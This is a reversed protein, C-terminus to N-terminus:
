AAGASGALKARAKGSEFGRSEEIREAYWEVTKELGARFSTKPEFNLLQRALAIDAFSHKVDGQKADAFEPKLSGGILKELNEILDILNFRRNCAINFVKGVAALPARCACLNAEVIDRVFIFDRSQMGDGYIVPNRGNLAATIFKPIVAAYDSGPDQRRGFVNFYRLAITELGYLRYFLKCNEEGALKSAAYPSLPDPVMTEVKPSFGEPGGASDERDGYIASSSAFVFRKVGADRAAVLLNLTGTVNIEHNLLPDAVSRPVSALAAHHLVFDVGEVAKRCDELVRIDGELLDISGPSVFSVNERKGTFFNDLIRVKEGRDLLEEALNSGIFGAGGTILFNM